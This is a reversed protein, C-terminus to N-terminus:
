LVSQLNFVFACNGKWFSKIKILMNINYTFARNLVSLLFLHVNWLINITYWFKANIALENESKINVWYFVM